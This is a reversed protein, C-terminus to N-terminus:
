ECSYPMGTPLLDLLGMSYAPAMRSLLHESGPRAEGEMEQDYTTSDRPSPGIGEVITRVEGQTAGIDPPTTSSPIYQVATVRTSARCRTLTETIEDKLYSGDGRIGRRKM